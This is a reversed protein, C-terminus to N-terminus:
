QPYRPLWLDSQLIFQHKSYALTDTISKHTLKSVQPNSSLLLFYAFRVCCWGELATVLLIIRRFKKKWLGTRLSQVSGMSLPAWSSELVTKTSSRAARSVSNHNNEQDAHRAEFKMYFQSVSNSMAWCGSAKRLCISSWFWHRLGHPLQNFLFVQALLWISPTIARVLKM